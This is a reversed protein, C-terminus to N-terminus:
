YGARQESLEGLTYKMTRSLYSEYRRLPHDSVYMKLIDKEFALLTRRIGSWAMPNPFITRSAIMWMRSCALCILSVLM